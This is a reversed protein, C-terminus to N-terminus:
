SFVDEVADTIDDVADQIPKAIDGATFNDDDDTEDSDRTDDPLGTDVDDVGGGVDVSDAVPDNLPCTGWEYVDDGDPDHCVRLTLENLSITNAALYHAQLGVNQLTTERDSSITFATAPDDTNSEDLEFDRFISNDASFASARVFTDGGGVEGNSTIIVRSQGPVAPVDVTKYIILEEFDANELEITTMPYASEETTDDVSPYVTVADSTVEGVVINFGGIGAIPAAYAVGTSMVILALLGWVALAAGLGRAIRKREYM